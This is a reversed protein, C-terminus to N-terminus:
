RNTSITCTMGRRSTTTAPEAGWLNMPSSPRQLVKDRASSEGRQERQDHPRLPEDLEQEARRVYRCCGSEREECEAIVEREVAEGELLGELRGLLLPRQGHDQPQNCINLTHFGKGACRQLEAVAADVDWFPTATVPLLRAADKSCWETLFDNYARVCELM